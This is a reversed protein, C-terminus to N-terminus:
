FRWRLRRPKCVSEVDFRDRNRSSGNETKFDFRDPNPSSGHPKLMADIESGSDMRL